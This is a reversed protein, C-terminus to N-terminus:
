SLVATEGSKVFSEYEKVAQQRKAEDEMCGFCHIKQVEGLQTVKGAIELVRPNVVYKDKRDIAAPTIPQV